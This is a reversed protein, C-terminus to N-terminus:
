LCKRKSLRAKSLVNPNREIFINERLRNLKLYKDKVGFRYHKQTKTPYTGIAYTFLYKKDEPLKTNVQYRSSLADTSPKQTDRHRPM